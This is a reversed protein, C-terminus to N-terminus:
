SVGTWGYGWTVVLDSSGSLTDLGRRESTVYEIQQTDAKRTLEVQKGRRSYHRFEGTNVVIVGSKTKTSDDYIGSANYRCDVFRSVVIPVGFVSAPAGKLISANPGMKDVTIVNSDTMLKKFMVEPSTIIALKGSGYEGMGGILEEGIKAATMGSAQNVTGSRDIAIGRLGMFARRHDNSGGLNSTGWRSRINWGTIGTDQHTAATDGNIITDENGDRHGKVMYQPIISGLPLASDESAQYSVLFRMAFTPPALTQNSTSIATTPVKANDDLTAESVLYPRPQGTIKPRIMAGNIATSEFLGEVITPVEFAMYLEPSFTDPIWEAGSGSSDSFARELAQRIHAPARMALRIVQEDLYPTPTGAKLMSRVVARDGVAKQLDRQWESCLDRDDLIGPLTMEYTRGAFPVIETRSVLRVKGKDAGTTQVYRSVLDGEGGSVERSIRPAQQAEIIQGYKESLDAVAREHATTNERVETLVARAHGMWSKLGADDTVADPNLNDILSVAM